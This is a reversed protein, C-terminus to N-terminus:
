YSLSQCLVYPIIAGEGEPSHSKAATELVEMRRGTIYVKAGNAALAQAARCSTLSLEEYIIVANGPNRGERHDMKQLAGCVDVGEESTTDHEASTRLLRSSVFALGLAYM